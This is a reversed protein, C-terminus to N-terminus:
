RRRGGTFSTVIWVVLLVLFVIVILTPIVTGM